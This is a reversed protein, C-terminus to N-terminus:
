EVESALIAKNFEADALDDINIELNNVLHHRDEGLREMKLIEEVVM